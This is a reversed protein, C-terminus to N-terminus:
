GAEQGMVPQVEPLWSFLFWPRERRAKRATWDFLGQLFRLHSRGADTQLFRQEFRARDANQLKGTLYDDFLEEQMAGIEELTEPDVFYQEELAECDPQDLKGLLYDALLQDKNMDTLRSQRCM